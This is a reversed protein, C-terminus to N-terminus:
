GHTQAEAPKSHEGAPPAAAAGPELFGLGEWLFLVAFVPFWVWIFGVAWVILVLWQVLGLLWAVPGSSKKMRAFWRLPADPAGLNDLLQHHQEASLM